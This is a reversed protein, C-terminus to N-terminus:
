GVGDIRTEGRGREREGKKERIARDKGKGSIERMYSVYREREREDGMVNYKRKTNFVSKQKM